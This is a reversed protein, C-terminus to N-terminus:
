VMFTGTLAIVSVFFGEQLFLINACAPYTILRKRQNSRLDYRSRIHNEM